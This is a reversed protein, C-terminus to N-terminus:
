KRRRGYRHVRQPMARILWVRLAAPSRRGADTPSRDPCGCARPWRAEAPEPVIAIQSLVSARSRRNSVSKRKPRSFSTSRIRRASASARDKENRDDFRAGRLGPEIDNDVGFFLEVPGRRERALVDADGGDRLGPPQLAHQRRVAQLRRVDDVIRDRAVDADASRQPTRARRRTGYRRADADTPSAATRRAAPEPSSSRSCGPRPWRARSSRSASRPSEALFM